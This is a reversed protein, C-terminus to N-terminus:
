QEFVLRIMHDELTFRMALSEGVSSLTQQFEFCNDQDIAAVLHSDYFDMIQQTNGQLISDLQAALARKKENLPAVEQLMREYIHFHGASLYDVLNHCFDDLAKEDLRTHTEKNPKMGVLHYYTILLQKRAQLWQDILANNGGVYETLSQLQKLM